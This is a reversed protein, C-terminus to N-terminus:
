PLQPVQRNDGNAINLGCAYSTQFQRYYVTMPTQQLLRTQLRSETGDRPSIPQKQHRAWMPTEVSTLSAGACVRSHRFVAVGTPFKHKRVLKGGGWWGWGWNKVIIGAPLLSLSPESSSSSSSSISSRDSRLPLSSTSSAFVPECLETKIFGANLFEVRNVAM